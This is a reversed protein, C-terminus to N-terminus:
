APPLGVGVYFQRSAKVKHGGAAEVAPKLLQGFVNAPIIPWGRQERVHSYVAYLDGGTTRLDPGRPLSKVFMAVARCREEAGCQAAGPETQLRTAQPAEERADDAEARFRRAQRRKADAETTAISQEARPAEVNASSQRPLAEGMRRSFAAGNADTRQPAFFGALGFLVVETIEIMVAITIAQLVDAAGLPSGLWGALAVLQPQRGQAAVPLSKLESELEAARQRLGEAQAAVARAGELRKLRACFQRHTGGELITCGATAEWIRHHREAAIEAEVTALPQWGLLAVREYAARLQAKVDAVREVTARAEALRASRQRELLAWANFISLAVLLAVAGVCIAGVGRRRRWAPALAALLALKALHLLAMVPGLGCNISLGAVSVTTAPDLWAGNRYPSAITFIALAAGLVLM